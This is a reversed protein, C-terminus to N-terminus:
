RTPPSSTGPCTSCPAATSTGRTTSSARAPSPGRAQNSPRPKQRQRCSNACTSIGNFHGATTNARIVVQKPTVDLQYGEPGTKPDANNLLVIGEGTVGDTIPLAFGTSPRLIGALLEAPKRATEPGLQIKASATLTFTIDPHPQLQVPQPVLENLPTAAEAAIGTM